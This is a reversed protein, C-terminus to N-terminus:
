AADIEEKLLQRRLTNAYWGDQALLSAHDGEEFIAGDKLVIIHDCFMISSMRHAVIIMTQEKNRRLHDLIKEETNTDVASLCDDLILTAAPHILARAIAVRQKQGGSLTLGREGILQDFGNAFSEISQRVQAAEAANRVAEENDENPDLAFAINASLTDSFLFTEQPVMAISRRLDNLKLNRTDIGDQFITGEPPDLLRGFLQAITSKGCGTPGVIALSSGAEVRFSIDGLVDEDSGDHRYTLSKFEWTGCLQTNEHPGDEIEPQEQLLTDLREMAVDAREFLALTWGMAIMPWVLMSFYGFFAIFHDLAFTGQIVGRGGFYLLAVAVFGSILEILVHMRGRTMAMEMADDIYQSAENEFRQVEYDERAFAKVVRSGSFSEQSLSSLAALQKQVRLSAQHLKPMVSRIMLFMVGMPVLTALTLKWNSIMMFIIAGIAMSGTQFMHMVGPGVGMRVAEVDATLRSMIDGTRARNFFSFSLTSLHAFVRNRLREEFSRSSRIFLWRMWFQSFATGIAYLIMLVVYQQIVANPAGEQVGAITKGVYYPLALALLGRLVMFVLAMRARAKEPAWLEKVIPNRLIRFM